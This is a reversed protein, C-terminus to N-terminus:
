IFKKKGFFQLFSLRNKHKETIFVAAGSNITISFKIVEIRAKEIFFFNKHLSNWLLFFFFYKLKGYAQWKGSFLRKFSLSIPFISYEASVLCINGCLKHYYRSIDQKIYWSIIVISKLSWCHNKSSITVTIEHYFCYLGWSSLKRKM